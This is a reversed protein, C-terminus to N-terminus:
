RCESAIVTKARAIAAARAADDMVGREGKEDVHALRVGSELTALQQRAQKCNEARTAANQAEIAKNKEDVEKTRRAAEEAQRRAAAASAANAPASAAPASAQPQGFPVLQVPKRANAPRALIDKEPTGQPPPRDSYQVNGQADRWKWQGQAQATTALLLTLGLLCFIRHVAM